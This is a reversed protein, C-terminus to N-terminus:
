LEKMIERALSKLGFFLNESLTVLDQQLKGMHVNEPAIGLKPELNYTVGNVSGYDALVVQWPYSLKKEHELRNIYRLLLQPYIPSKSYFCVQPMRWLRGKDDVHGECSWNTEFVRLASLEFVLPVVKTELPFKAPDSSLAAPADKCDASCQFPLHKQCNPCVAEEAAAPQDILM